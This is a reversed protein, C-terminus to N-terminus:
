DLSIETLYDLTFVDHENKDNIKKNEPMRNITDDTTGLRGAGTDVNDNQYGHCRQPARM